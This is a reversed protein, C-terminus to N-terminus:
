SEVKVEGKERVLKLLKFLNKQTEVEYDITEEKPEADM